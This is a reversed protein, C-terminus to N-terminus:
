RVEPPTEPQTVAGPALAPGEAQRRVIAQNRRLPQRLDIHGALTDVEHGDVLIQVQKISPLNSTLVNVIAYVTLLEDHSGGGHQGSAEVSLDVFADGSETLFVSRLTTGDPVPSVEPPVAPRLQEALIASAQDGAAKAYPVEREVPVLSSGDDSVLFVNVRIRRVPEATPEATRAVPTASKTSSTLTWVALGGAVVAVTAGLLIVSLVRLM